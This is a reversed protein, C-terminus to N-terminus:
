NIRKLQDSYKRNTFFIEYIKNLSNPLLVQVNQMNRDYGFM